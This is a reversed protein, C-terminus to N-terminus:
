RLREIQRRVDAHSSDESDLGFKDATVPGYYCYMLYVDRATMISYNLRNLAADAWPVMALKESGGAERILRGLRANSAMCRGRAKWREPMSRGKDGMAQLETHFQDLEALMMEACPLFQSREM